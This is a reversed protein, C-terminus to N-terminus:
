ANSPFRSPDQFAFELRCTAIRWGEETLEFENSYHGIAAPQTFNIPENTLSEPGIHRYLSLYAIGQAHGADTVDIHINSLVHRSRLDKPRKEMSRAIAQRGRLVFGLDLTAQETFLDAFDEYQGFDVYRAYDSFLATCAQSIIQHDM